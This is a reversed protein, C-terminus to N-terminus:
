IILIKFSDTKLFISMKLSFNTGLRREKMQFFFSNMPLLFGQHRRELSQDTNNM